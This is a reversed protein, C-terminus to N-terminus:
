YTGVGWWSAMSGFMSIHARALVWIPIRNGSLELIEGGTFDHQSDIFRCLVESEPILPCSDVLRGYVNEYFKYL